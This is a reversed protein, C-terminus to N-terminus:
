AARADSSRGAFRALLDRVIPLGFLGTGSVVPLLTQVSLDQTLLFFMGGALLSSGVLRGATVWLGTGEMREWENVVQDREIERLFQRFTYNFVSLGPKSVVLGKLILRSVVHYSKPNVLGEQALQILVLKESRTCSTWLLQYTAQARAAFVDALEDLSPGGRTWTCGRMERAIHMLPEFTAAECDLTKKWRAPQYELWHEWREVASRECKIPLYCRRFLSLLLSSRSLGIEPVVDDYIGKRETGFVEEFNAIPDVSTTVIIVKAVKSSRTDRLRELLKLVQARSTANELQAELNSMHLWLRGDPALPANPREAMVNIREVLQAISADDLTQDLLQIRDAPLSGPTVEMRRFKRRIAIGVFKDKKRRPPGILLITEMGQPSLQGLQEQLTPGAIFPPAAL